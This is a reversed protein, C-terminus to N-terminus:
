YSIYLSQIKRSGEKRGQGGEQSNSATTQGIDSGGKMVSRDNVVGGQCVMCWQHVMSSGWQDVVGRQHVSRSGIGRGGIGWGGSRIVWGRSGVVWLRVM